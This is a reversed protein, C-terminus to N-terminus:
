KDPEKRTLVREIAESSAPKVLHEDFGAQLAKQRDSDRGFGTMAVLKTEKSPLTKRVQAAIDYGNMGPLSIDVIAVEPREHLITALGQDGDAAVTVKYGDLRLSEAIMDRADEEDEVLVVSRVRRTPRTPPSQKPLRKKTVPVRIEFQCGRDKGDSKATVSGGHLEIFSRTLTLGLGMGESPSAENGSTQVFMEFIEELM